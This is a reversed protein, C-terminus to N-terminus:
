RATYALSFFGVWHKLSYPATLGMGTELLPIVGGTYTDGYRLVTGKLPMDFTKSAVLLGFPVSYKGCWLVRGPTLYDGGWLQQTLQGIKEEELMGTCYDQALKQDLAIAKAHAQADLGFPSNDFDVGYHNADSSVLIVFDKGPILGREHVYARVFRAVETAVQQMRDWPMATVMVPTIRIDPNYYQLFPVLAEISHELQHARNSVLVMSTDLNKLLYERLPAIPVNGRVGKWSPYADFMLVGRPDGIEKRVTGHTVGFILVERTRLRSFLPFYMKGAYLYDDHPSVAAIIPLPTNNKPGETELFRCLREMSALNWCFGIDDKVPRADPAPVSQAASHTICLILLAPLFLFRM